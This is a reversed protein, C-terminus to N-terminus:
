VNYQGRALAVDVGTIQTGALEMRTGENSHNIRYRYADFSLWRVYLITCYSYNATSM